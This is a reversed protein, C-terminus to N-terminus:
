ATYELPSAAGLSMAVQAQTLLRPDREMRLFTNPEDAFNGILLAFLGPRYEGWDVGM